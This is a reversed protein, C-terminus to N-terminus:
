EVIEFQKPSRLEINPRGKHLLVKGTFRVKKNLFYDEPAEPLEPFLEKFSTIYFKGQWDKDFNLFCINGNYNYTNVITGEVTIRHGLYKKAETWPIITGPPPADVEPMNVLEEDLLRVAAIPKDITEGEAPIPSRGNVALYPKGASLLAEAEAMTPDPKAPAEVPQEADVAEASAPAEQPTAAADPMAPAEPEALTKTTTETERSTATPEVPAVAEPTDTMAPDPSEDEAPRNCGVVVATTAALVALGAWRRAGATWHGDCTM